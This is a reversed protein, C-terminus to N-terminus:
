QKLVMTSMSHNRTAMHYLPLYNSNITSGPFFITGFQFLLFPLKDKEVKYISEFGNQLNGKYVHVFNEEIGKGKKISFLNRLISVSKGEGEVSTSYVLDDHFKVGYICPGNIDALFKSNWQLSTSKYLLRISNKEFPTDTAYVLGQPTPFAICSRYLQSGILVPKVTKFNDDSMWIAASHDLDGTLIYVCNAYPDSIINHVHEIAGKPFTYVVTWKDTVERKYISVESKEPNIRYEGFYVGDDFPKINKIHTLALPRSRKMLFGRSLSANKLDLEFISNGMSFFVMDNVKISARVGARLLRQLIPIYSTLKQFFSMDLKVYHTLASTDLNLKYFSERKYVLLLSESLFCIPYLNRYVNVLKMQGTM